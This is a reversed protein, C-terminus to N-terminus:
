LTTVDWEEMSFEWGQSGFHQPSGKRIIEVYDYFVTERARESAAQPRQCRKTVFGDLLMLKQVLADVQLM